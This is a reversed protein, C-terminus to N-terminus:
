AVAAASLVPPRVRDTRRRATECYDSSLEIGMFRRGLIAAAVLTSGSGCFPDLILSGPKSFARILSMLNSVPKQTPHFKNGSYKWQLVDSIPQEPLRPSGKALLYAMEHRYSLFVEKSSYSKQFVLHGVPRFGAIRWAQMFKDVQHWGYFSICFADRKLVRFIEQFAPQLWDARDDNTIKQGDRSVYKAIYPPDTLVMDVSATPLESLVQVCDGQIVSADIGTQTLEQNQKTKSTDKLLM